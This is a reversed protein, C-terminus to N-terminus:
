RFDRADSPMIPMAKSVRGDVSKVDGVVSGIWAVGGIYISIVIVGIMGLSLIREITGTATFALGILGFTLLLTGLLFMWSYWYGRAAHVNAASEADEELSLWSDFKLKSAEKEQEERMKSLDERDKKADERLREIEKDASERIKSQDETSAKMAEEDADRRVKDMKGSSEDIRQMLPAAKRVWKNQFDTQAQEYKAQAQTVGRMGLTDCGRSLIVLFLGAFVLLPIAGSIGQLFGVFGGKGACFMAGRFAAKAHGGEPAAALPAPGALPPAATTAGAALAAAPASATAAFTNQCGPCRVQHGLHAEEVQLKRGCHPCAAIM